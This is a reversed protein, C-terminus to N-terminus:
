EEMEKEILSGDARLLREFYGLVHYRVQKSKAFYKFFKKEDESAADYDFISAARATTKPGPQSNAAASDYFPKGKGSILYNLNVNFTEAIKSYFEYRPKTKGTEIDSLNAISIGLKGAFEAQKMGLTKRIGRLRQGLQENSNTKNLKVKGRSSVM